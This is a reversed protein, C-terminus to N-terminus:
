REARVCAPCTFVPTLPKRFLRPTYIRWQASRAANKAADPLGQPVRLEATCGRGFNGSCRHVAVGGDTTM